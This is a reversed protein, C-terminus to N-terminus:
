APLPLALHFTTTKGPVSEAWIRGGHADVLAKAIYLGLGVSESSPDAAVRQFRHFITALKESPIGDGRNTCSLRVEGDEFRLTLRITTDPYGYKCANLVVNTLAQEIRQSDVEVACAEGEVEVITEREGLEGALREMLGRVLAELDVPRREFRLRRAELLSTDLLDAIMRNMQHSSSIIHQLKSLVDEDLAKRALLSAYTHIITVPQRLDHAVLSTWEERLREIEKIPRLDQLIGVGGVMRGRDDHLFGLTGLVPVRTGDRRLITFETNVLLPASALDWSLPQQKGLVKGSPLRIEGAFQELGGNPDVARGLLREAESNSLVQGGPRMMVVAVPSREIMFRLWIREREVVSLLREREREARKREEIERSLHQHDEANLIALGFFEGMIRYTALDEATLRLTESFIWAMVGVTKRRALLPVVVMRQGGRGHIWRAAKEFAPDLAAAEEVVQVRGTRAALAVLLHPDDLSLVKTEDAFEEPLRWDAVRVLAREEQEVRVLLSSIAGLAVAQETIVQLVRDPDVERTVERAIRALDLM